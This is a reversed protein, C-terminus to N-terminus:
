SAQDLLCHLRVLDFDVAFDIRTLPEVKREKGTKCIVRKWDPRDIIETAVGYVQVFDVSPFRDHQHFIVVLRFHFLAFIKCDFSKTRRTTSMSYLRYAAFIVVIVM